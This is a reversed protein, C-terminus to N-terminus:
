NDEDLRAKKSPSGFSAFASSPKKRPSNEWSLSKHTPVPQPFAPVPYDERPEYSPSLVKLRHGQIQYAGHRRVLNNNGDFIHWCVLTTDVLVITGPRLKDYVQWPMILNDDEDRMDLQVLRAKQHMFLPGGHDPLLGPDYLAGIGYSPPSSNTDPDELSSETESLTEDSEVAVNDIGTENVPEEALLNRKKNLMTTSTPQGAKDAVPKPVKYKNPMTIKILARDNFPRGRGGNPDHAPAVSSALFESVAVKNSDTTNDKADSDMIEELGALQNQFWTQTLSGEPAGTPTRLVIVDKVSTDDTIHKPHKATGMYHNGKASIATGLYSPCVEGVMVLSLEELDEVARKSDGAMNLKYLTKGFGSQEPPYYCQSFDTGYVLNGYGFTAFCDLGTLRAELDDFFSDAVRRAYTNSLPQMPVFRHLIHQSELPLILLAKYTWPTETGRCGELDIIAQKLTQGQSKHATMAFAPVLPLQSRKLNCRRGSHPHTFTLDTTEALVVAENPLLGSLPDSVISPSEVICSTAYRRGNSDATYWISKLRGTCGNVIGGEVDYNQCVMVPMGIALPIRGLRQSTSGSSLQLLHERIDETVPKGRHSDQAYYYHLDQNTRSAYTQAARENLADKQANDCVIVPADRWQGWDVTARPVLREQLINFDYENCKGERLRSLLAILDENEPGTQRMSQTLIVASNVSLWLMRGDIKDRGSKSCALSSSTDVFASLRTDGVPPLQAFDGAFIINIGGFHSSSGKAIELSESIKKLTKCGIM